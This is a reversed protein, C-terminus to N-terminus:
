VSVYNLKREADHIQLTVEVVNEFFGGTRSASVMIASAIAKFSPTLLFAEYEMGIDEYLDWERHCRSCLASLNEADNTGGYILPVIHHCETSAAGCRECVPHKKLFAKSIPQFNKRSESEMRDSRCVKM